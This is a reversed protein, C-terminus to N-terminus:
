EEAAAQQGQRKPQQQEDQTRGVACVAASLFDGSIALGNQAGTFSSGATYYGSTTANRNSVRYIVLLTAALFVLFVALTLTTDGLAGSM